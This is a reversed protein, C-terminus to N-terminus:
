VEGLALPIDVQLRRFEEDLAAMHADVDVISGSRAVNEMAQCLDAMRSAGVSGSSGKIGHAARQVRDLARQAVLARLEGLRSATDREYTDFLDRLWTLEGGTLSLLERVKVRDLAQM